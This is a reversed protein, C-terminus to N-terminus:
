PGLEWNVLNQWFRTSSVNRIRADMVNLAVADCIVAFPPDEDLERRAAAWDRADLAADLRPNSYRSRIADPAGTRWRQVALSTPRIRPRFTLLDFEQLKAIKEFEAVEEVRVTGARDGLARSVALGFREFNGLSIALVDLKRASLQAHPRVLEEGDPAACEDGFALTRVERNSLLKVLELREQRSLRATNFAIGNGFPSPLRSVRLRSIGDLFELWRPNIQLLLDADGKLTHALAEQPSDYAIFSVMSVRGPAPVRRRLLLHREDQEVLRFGGTGIEVGNVLRHIYAEAIRVEISTTADDSEILISGGEEQTARLSYAQLSRAVDDFTVQSGDSFSADPRLWVRMAQPPLFQVRSTLVLGTEGNSDLYILPEFVMLRATSSWNNVNAVSLPSLKDNVAIRLEFADGSAPARCSVLVFLLILYSRCGCLTTAAGEGNRSRYLTGRV